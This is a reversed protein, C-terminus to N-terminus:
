ERSAGIGVGSGEEETAYPTYIAERFQGCFAPVVFSISPIPPDPPHNTIAALQNRRESERPRHPPRTSQGLLRSLLATGCLLLIGSPKNSTQRQVVPPIGGESTGPAGGFTQSLFFIDDLYFEHPKLEPGVINDILRQFTAPASHLGFPLINFQM